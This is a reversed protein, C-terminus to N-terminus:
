DRGNELRNIEARWTARQQIVDAYDALTAAGEAVKIVCYDTDALQKKLKAIQIEALEAESYPVFQLVTEYEDWAEQATVGPIDVVWEVEKGGTEPYVKTTEWHGVEEAAAIAKHHAILIERQVTYGKEADYDHIEAGNVDLLRM